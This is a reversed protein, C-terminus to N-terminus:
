GAFNRTGPHQHEFKGEARLHAVTDAAEQWATRLPSLLEIVEQINEGKQQTNAAILQRYMYDYLDYLQQAMDGGVEMNLVSMLELLIAQVKLLNRHVGEREKAELAQAALNLYKLASDYLMVLLREPTATEIHAHRYTDVRQPPPATKRAIRLSGGPQPEPQPVPSEPNM